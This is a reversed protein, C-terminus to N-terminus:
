RCFVKGLVLLTEQKSMQFVNQSRGPCYIKCRHTCNIWLGNVKCKFHIGLGTKVLLGSAAIVKRLM